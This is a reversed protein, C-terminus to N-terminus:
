KDAYNVKKNKFIKKITEINNNIFVYNVILITIINLIGIGILIGGTLVYYFTSNHINFDINRNHIGVFVSGVILLSLSFIFLILLILFILIIKKKVNKM